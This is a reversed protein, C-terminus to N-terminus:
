AFYVLYLAVFLSAAVVLLHLAGLRRSKEFRTTLTKWGGQQAIWQAVNTEMLTGVNQVLCPVFEPHGLRVCDLALSGALAYLAVIRGWTVEPELIRRALALFLNRVATENNLTQLGVNEIVSRYLEPHRKELEDALRRIEASVRAVPPDGAPGGVSKLRQLGLKKHAALRSRLKFRLYRGCAAMAQEVIEGRTVAGGGGGSGVAGGRWGVAASWRRPPPLRRGPRVEETAAVYGLLSQKRYPM